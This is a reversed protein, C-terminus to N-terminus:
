PCTRHFKCELSSSLSCIFYTCYWSTFFAISFLSASFSVTLLSLPHCSTSNPPDSFAQQLRCKYFAKFSTLSHTRCIYPLLVQRGRLTGPSDSSYSPQLPTLKPGPSSFYLIFGSTYAPPSLSYTKHDKRGGEWIILGLFPRGSRKLSKFMRWDLFYRISSAPPVCCFRRPPSQRATCGKVHLSFKLFSFCFHCNVYFTNLM